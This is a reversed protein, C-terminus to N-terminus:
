AHPRPAPEVSVVCETRPDLYIRYPLGPPVSWFAAMPVPIVRGAVIWWVRYPSAAVLGGPPALISPGGVLWKNM